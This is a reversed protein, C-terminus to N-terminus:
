SHSIAYREPHKFLNAIEGAKEQILLRELIRPPHVFTGQRVLRIMEAIAVHLVKNQEGADLSKPKEGVLDTAIFTYAFWEIQPNLASVDVLTFKDFTLGTEEELERRAAAEIDEDQEVVGGVITLEPSDMHPQCEEIMVIKEDLLPLVLVTDKRKVIEFTKQSGDFMKQQWQYVDFRTGSFVKTAQESFRKHGKPLPRNKM